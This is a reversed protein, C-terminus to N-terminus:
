FGDGDSRFVEFAVAPALDHNRFRVKGLTRAQDTERLPNKKFRKVTRLVQAVDSKRCMQRYLYYQVLYTEPEMYRNFYSSMQSAIAGLTLSYNKARFAAWMKEFQIQRVFPYLLSIKQYTELSDDFRGEGFFSRALSHLLTQRAFFNIDGFKKSDAETLALIKQYGATAAKFNRAAMFADAQSWTKNIESQASQIQDKLQLRDWKWIIDWGVSPNRHLLDRVQSWQQWDPHHHAVRSALIRLSVLDGSDVCLEMQSFIADFDRATAAAAGAHLSVFLICLAALVKTM